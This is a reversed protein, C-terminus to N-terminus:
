RLPAVASVLRSSAGPGSEQAHGRLNRGPAKRRLTFVMRDVKDLDVRDGLCMPKLLGGEREVFFRNQNVLELSMRLRFSCQNMGGFAFQFVRGKEGENLTLSFTALTTGDLLMDTTVYKAKVLAGVPFRYVFGAGEAEAVYWTAGEIPTRGEDKRIQGITEAADLRQGPVDTAFANPALEACGALAAVSLFERRDLKFTKDTM